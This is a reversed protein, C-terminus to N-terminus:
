IVHAVILVITELALGACAALSAKIYAPNCIKLKRNIDLAVSSVYIGVIFFLALGAPFYLAVCVAMAALALLVIPIMKTVTKTVTGQLVTSCLKGLIAVDISNTPLEKELPAIAM